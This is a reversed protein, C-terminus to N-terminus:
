SAKWTVGSADFACNPETVPAGGGATLTGKVNNTVRRMHPLWLVSANMLDTAVTSNVYQDGRFNPDGGTDYMIMGYDRLQKAHRLRQPNGAGFGPAIGNMTDLDPGGKDVSPIAFLTGYDIHGLGNGPDTIYGDVGNAPWVFNRSAQQHPHTARAWVILGLAHQIPPASVPNIEAGRVCLGQLALQSATATHRPPAYDIGDLPVTYRLVANATTNSQRNFQFFESCIGSTEDFVTTSRDGSTGVGFGIPMRLSIPLGAGSGVGSHSVVVLPDTSKGVIWRFGYNGVGTNIRINPSYRLDVCAPDSAGTFVAGEGIPRNCASLDNFPHEILQAGGSPPNSTRFYCVSDLSTPPSANDDGVLYPYAM